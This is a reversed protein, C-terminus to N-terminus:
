LFRLQDSKDGTGAGQDKTLGNSEFGMKWNHKCQLVPKLQSMPDESASTRVDIIKRKTLCGYSTPSRM